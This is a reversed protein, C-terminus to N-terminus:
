RVLGFGLTKSGTRLLIRDKKSLPCKRNLKVSIEKPNSDKIFVHKNIKTIECEYEGSIHHLICRYGRSILEGEINHFCVTLEPKDSDKTELDEIVKTELPVYDLISDLNTGCYGSVFVSNITSFRLKKCYDGIAEEMEVTPQALDIKNWVILVNKCGVSRALLLDEKVTGRDFSTKFEDSLSSLVICILNIETHYLGSILARIYLQHGPTDILTYDCSRKQNFFRCVNFDTTKTKNNLLEGDILDMLISFKSKSQNEEINEIYQRYSSDHDFFNNEYLLRGAITSKGSDTQGCLLFSM